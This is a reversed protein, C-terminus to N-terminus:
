YDRETPLPFLQIARCVPHGIGHGPASFICLCCLSASSKLSPLKLQTSCCPTAVTQKATIIAIASSQQKPNRHEAAIGLLLLGQILLLLNCTMIVPSAVAMGLQHPTLQLAICLPSVNVIGQLITYYYCHRSTYLSTFKPLGVAKHWLSEYRLACPSWRYANILLLSATTLLSCCRTHRSQFLAPIHM